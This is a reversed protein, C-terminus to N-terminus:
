CFNWCNRTSLSISHLNGREAGILLFSMSRGDVLDESFSVKGDKVSFCVWLSMVISFAVASLRGDKVM